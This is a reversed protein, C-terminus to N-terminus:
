ILGPNLLNGSSLLKDLSRSYRSIELREMTLMNHMDSGLFDIMDGQILKETTKQLPTAHAGGLSTINLQFFIGREKLEEFKGFDNNGTLIDRLIHL